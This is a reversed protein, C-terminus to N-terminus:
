HLAYRIIYIDGTQGTELGSRTTVTPTGEVNVVVNSVFCNEILFLLVKRHIHMKKDPDLDFVCSFISNHDWGPDFFTIRDPKIKM